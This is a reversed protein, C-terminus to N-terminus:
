GKRSSSCFYQKAEYSWLRDKWLRNRKQHMILYLILCACTDQLTVLHVFNCPTCHEGSSAKLLMSNQTGSFRFKGARYQTHM